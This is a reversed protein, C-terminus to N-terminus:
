AKIMAKNNIKTTPYDHSLIALRCIVFNSTKILIKNSIKKGITKNDVLQAGMSEILITLSIKGLKHTNKACKNALTTKNIIIIQNTQFGM